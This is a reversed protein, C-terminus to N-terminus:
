GPFRFVRCMYIYIYIRALIRYQVGWAVQNMGPVYWTHTMKKRAWVWCLWLTGNTSFTATRAPKNYVRYDALTRLCVPVPLATNRQFFSLLYAFFLVFSYIRVFLPFHGFLSCALFQFPRVYSERYQRQYPAAPIPVPMVRPSKSGIISMGLGQLFDGIGYMRYRRYDAPKM